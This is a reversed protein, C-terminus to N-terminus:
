RAEDDEHDTDVDHDADRHDHHHDNDHRKDYLTAVGRATLSLIEAKRIWRNDNDHKAKVVGHRLFFQM